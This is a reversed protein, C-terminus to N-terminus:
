LGRMKKLEIAYARWQEVSKISDIEEKEMIKVGNLGLNVLVMNLAASSGSMLYEIIANHSITSGFLTKFENRILNLTSRTEESIRIHTNSVM